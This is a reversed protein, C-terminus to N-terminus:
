KSRRQSRHRLSTASRSSPLRRRKQLRPVFRKKARKKQRLWSSGLDQLVHLGDALLLGLAFGAWEWPQESMSSILWRRSHYSFESAALVSTLFQQDQGFRWITHLFLTSLDAVVVLYILRSLTGFVPWHSLGRHRFLRHYPYWLYRLLGWSKAPLSQKLDIDPSLLLVSSWFGLLLCVLSLWHEQWVYIAPPFGLLSIICQM